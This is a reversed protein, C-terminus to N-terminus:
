PEKQLQLHWIFNLSTEDRIKLRYTKCVIITKTNVDAWNRYVFLIIKAKKKELWLESFFCSPKM